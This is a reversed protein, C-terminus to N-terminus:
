SADEQKRHSFWLGVLLFVVSVSAFAASWWVWSPTPPAAFPHRSAGHTNAAALGPQGPANGQNPAAGSIGHTYSRGHDDVSTGVVPSPPDFRAADLSENVAADTVIFLHNEHPVGGLQSRGRKPFWIGADLRQFEDVIFDRGKGWIGSLTRMRHRRVLCDHNLDLWLVEYVASKTGEDRIAAIQACPQGGVDEVDELEWKWKSLIEPLWEAFGPWYLAETADHEIFSTPKGVGLGTVLLDVYKEPSEEMPKNFQARFAFGRPGNFGSITHVKSSGDDYFFFWDELRDLGHDAWIWETRAFLKASAPDPPPPWEDVAEDTEPLSRLEWVVRVNVFSARWETLRRTIEALDVSAPDEARLPAASGCSLALFIFLASWNWYLRSM